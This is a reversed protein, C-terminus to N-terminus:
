IPIKSSKLIEVTRRGECFLLDLISLHPLFGIRDEFVQRYRIPEPFEQDISKPLLKNRWDLYQIIEPHRPEVGTEAALNGTAGRGTPIGIEILGTTGDEREGSQGPEGLTGMQKLQVPGESWRTQIELGLKAVVWDWCKRNWEHLWDTPQQYLIELEPKYFEFWPSRNYCSTITKWHQGQWGTKNDIRVEKLPRRQNRGNVLPISLNVPGSGGAIICRNRFSMKRHIDYIDFEVNSFDIVKKFLIVSPFYQCETLVVM